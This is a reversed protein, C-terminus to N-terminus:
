NQRPSGSPFSSPVLAPESGPPLPQPLRCFVETGGGPRARIQLTGGLARARYEMIHLGLGSRSRTEPSIGTGDDTVTLTISKKALALRVALRRARAHKIANNMAEQAIRFLHIAAAKDTILVPGGVEIFRTRLGAHRGLSKVLDRLASTLGDDSLKVPFLGRSLRRGETIAEDLLRCFREFIPDEGPATAALRQRFANADFAASVLMQCLGDHIEYGFNAQVRDGIELIQRELRVRETIDEVVFSFRPRDPSSQGLSAITASLWLNGAPLPQEFQFRVPAGERLCRQHNQVWLQDIEPTYALGTTPRNIIQGPERGFLRALAPNGSVVLIENGALETVGMLFPSSDYFAQLTAQSERLAANAAQLEATRELVRAELQDHAERLAQEARKQDTIEQVIVNVGILRGDPLTVPSWQSMWTRTIGPQAATQGTIEFNLVPQLTATVQRCISETTDALHPVVERVTRGLHKEVPVGNLVALAENVRVYRFETDLLCLGLPADQYIADIQALKLKANQTELKAQRVQLERHLRRQDRELKLKGNKTKPNSKHERLRSRARPHLGATKVPTNSRRRRGHKKM